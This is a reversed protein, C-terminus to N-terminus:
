RRSNGTGTLNNLIASTEPFGDRDFVLRFVGKAPGDRITMTGGPTLPGSNFTQELLAFVKKKYVTDDNGKLHEGKTEFVLVSPQGYTSGAMAVFDPWIRERRWGRLYYEGQQRAAIRHWWQLAKQEDLYRAFNSELATDFQSSYVPEFLSIQAPHGDERALLSPNDGVRVEYEKVLRYNAESSELDFRIEGTSLKNRFVQEAQQDMLRTIQELMQDLLNSRRAYIAADDLKGKGRVLQIFDAVFRSAQWPNPVIESLRRTYWSIQVSKDIYLEQSTESLETKIEEAIDVFGERARPSQEGVTRPAKAQIADWNIGTVIHRQYDLEEWGDAGDRHLVKPLFIETNQFPERRRALVTKPDASPSSQVEDTLDGLGESELGEKVKEVANGVGTSYCYVYCRNLSERSTLRADPQRLVRGVMQTISNPATTNDLLVLLYAFPCDWGEKLADKTIIWRVQSYESALNERGLQDSSSAKIRVAEAPVGLTQTLHERVDESHVKIGDRQQKGTREVRVVAIPRIYRGESNQLYAAENSLRELETHAAGLTYKWNANSFARVMVPLKIMEEAKLVRGPIDVLLNSRKDDPTASLELILSPNLENITSNVFERADAVAKANGYAKHAEDLIIAPNLLKCVNFLSRKVPGDSERDLDPHSELLRGEGLADDSEPFLSSYHGSDRHLKLTNRKKEKRCVSQVSVLMVCLFNDIDDKSFPTDKELVKVRGGSANDLRQRYPHEKNWLAAKTQKYIADRPVMWLVLGTSQALGTLAAAALLTKGGGTPVKFCIHPLPRARADVRPCYRESGPFSKWAARPYDAVSAFIDPAFGANTQQLALLQGESQERATELAAQWQSFTHLALKQYDKLEM